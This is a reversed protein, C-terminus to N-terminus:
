FLDQAASVNIQSSILSSTIQKIVYQAFKPTPAPLVDQQAVKLVVEMRTWLLLLFVNAYILPM